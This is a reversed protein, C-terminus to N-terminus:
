TELTMMAATKADVGLAKAIEKARKTLTNVSVGQKEADLVLKAATETDVGLAKSLEDAQQKQPDTLKDYTPNEPQPQLQPEESVKETKVTLAPSAPSADATDTDTATKRCLATFETDKKLGTFTGSTQWTNGGDM